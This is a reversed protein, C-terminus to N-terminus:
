FQKIMSGRAPGPPERPIWYTPANRDFEPRMPNRSFLRMALGIPTIVVFFLIATVIPTMVRGLLVGLQTWVRNFPALYDPRVIALVGATVAIAVSWWRIGGGRWVPVLAIISFAIAFVFGFSRNSGGRHDLRRTSDEHASM